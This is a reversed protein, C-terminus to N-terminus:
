CQMAIQDLARLAESLPEPRTFGTITASGTSFVIINAKNEAGGTEIRARLGSHVEPCLTVEAVSSTAPLVKSATLLNVQRNLGVVVKLMSVFVQSAQRCLGRSVLKAVQTADEISRAGTIHLTGNHFVKVTTCSRKKSGQAEKQYSRVLRVSTQNSAISCSGTTGSPATVTEADEYPEMLLPKVDDASVSSLDIGRNDSLMAIATITSIGRVIM